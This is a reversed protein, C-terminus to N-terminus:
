TNHPVPQGWAEASSRTRSDRSSSTTPARGQAQFENAPRIIFSILCAKMLKGLALTDREPMVAVIRLYNVRVPARHADDEWAYVAVHIAVLGGHRFEKPLRQELPHCTTSRRYAGVNGAHRFKDIVSSGSKHNGRIVTCCQPFPELEQAVIRGLGVFHPLSCSSANNFFEIPRTDHGLTQRGVSPSFEHLAGM